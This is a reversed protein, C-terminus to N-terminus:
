TRSVGHMILGSALDGGAYGAADFPASAYIILGGGRPGNGWRLGIHCAAPLSCTEPSGSAFGSYIPATLPAPDHAAAQRKGGTERQTHTHSHVYLSRKRVAILEGKAGSQDRATKHRQKPASKQARESPAEAYRDDPPRSLAAAVPEPGGPGARPRRQPSSSRKGERRRGGGGREEEGSCWLGINTFAIAESQERERAGTTADPRHIACVSLTVACSTRPTPFTKAPSSLTLPVNRARRSFCRARWQDTM